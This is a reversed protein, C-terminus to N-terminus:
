RRRTTSRRRAPRRRLHGDGVVTATSGGTDAHLHLHRADDRVPQQLLEANPAYTLGTGGGTIAVTGNAPQTVSAIAEPRRRRRHRQRARRDATAGSDETVTAADDVAVPPDDVCTVTSRSPRRRAAPTLTYTFTDPRARPHQLLEREARLDPRHRRRHDRGHRQGAPDGLRDIKPGGDIDTDNALVDIPPPAPRGRHGDRRRRGRGAPRRRLDVTVTVTAHLRRQPHLHLTPDHGAPTATTPTRRTPSARHRRRHDVVTGNAPQTM